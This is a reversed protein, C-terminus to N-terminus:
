GLCINERASANVVWPTDPCFAVRNDPAVVTVEGMGREGGGNRVGGAGGNEGWGKDGDGARIPLHEVLGSLLTSKGCGIPGVVVSLGRRM